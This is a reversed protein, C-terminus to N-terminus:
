GSPQSRYWKPRLREFATLKPRDNIMIYPQHPHRVLYDQHDAEAPFFGVGPAEIRTTAGPIGAIAARGQTQQQADLPFLASRYQPGHDPGQGGVQTPDHAVAFFIDLLQPYTIQAPDYVVEVAEAHGTRGTSVAEYNAQDGPGGIYGSRVSRVGRAHEFVAEVGWFCGGALIARASSGQPSPAAPALDPVPARAAEAQAHDPTFERPVPAAIGACASLAMPVALLLPLHKM